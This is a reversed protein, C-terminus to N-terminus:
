LSKSEGGDVSMCAGNVLSAQKSCLFVVVNAVEEPTGFRGLPFETNVMKEFGEPNKRMEEEWGTDPIMVAGPAVSNLTIGDRALDPNM